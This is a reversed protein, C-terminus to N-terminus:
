QVLKRITFEEDSLKQDHTIKTITMKTKHNKILDTMEASLAIWYIGRKEMKTVLKKCKQGSKNYYITNTGYFEKKDITIILKSYESNRPNKPILELIYSSETTRILKPNYKDSYALAEMDEYTFDTGAFTQNKIHSAIRREKGFAPLYIYMLENPLSLFGIGAQSAPSTFRTIRKHKGKQLMSAKRISSNGKKDTIQITIEAYQDLPAFVVKDYKMLIEQASQALCAITPFICISSLLLLYKIREHM